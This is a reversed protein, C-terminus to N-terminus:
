DPLVDYLIAAQAASGRREAIALVTVVRVQRGLALNLVDGPRLAHGPKEVRM